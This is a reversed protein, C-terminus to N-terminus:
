LLGAGSAASMLLSTTSYVLTADAYINLGGNNTTIVRLTTWNPPM